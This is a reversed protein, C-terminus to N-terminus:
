LRSPRSLPAATGAEQLLVPSPVDDVPMRTMRWGAHALWIAAICAAAWSLFQGLWQQEDLRYANCLRVPATEYLWGAIAMMPLTNGLFFGQVVMGAAKWSLRLAAGCLLLAVWKITGVRLDVLALDLLRPVMALALVLAVLALGAIGHANCAQLRARWAPSVAGAILGGALAIAPFQLLMHMSMRAELAHRLPPAMLTALLALGLTAPQRTLWRGAANM